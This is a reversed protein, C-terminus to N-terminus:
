PSTGTTTTTTETETTTETATTTESSTSTETTTTPMTTTSTETTTSTRPEPDDGGVALAVLAILLGIVIAAVLGVAFKQGSSMGGDDPPM